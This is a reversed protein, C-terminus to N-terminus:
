SSQRKLGNLLLALLVLVGVSIVQLSSPFGLLNLGNRLVGIALVGLVTGFLWGNGREFSTGGLAVAAMADFELGLSATPHGASMRSAFMVSTLGVMLGSFAYVGILVAAVNGGALRWAERNGGMAFIANGFRTRYLIFHTIWYAVGAIILPTPIGVLSSSFLAPLADGVNTISQGDTMVLALGQAMGLTGLTAVFPPVQLYAVVVGNWLGAVLGCGIGIAFATPLSAGSALASAAVMGALAVVGGMSLDIGESLIVLTMPLALLLLISSQVGLNTLNPGTLFTDTTVSFALALVVLIAWIGPAREIAAPWAAGCRRLVLDIM